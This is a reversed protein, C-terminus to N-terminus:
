LLEWEGESLQLCVELFEEREQIIKRMIVYKGEAYFISYYRDHKGFRGQSEIDGELKKWIARNGRINFSRSIM